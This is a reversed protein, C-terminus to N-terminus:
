KQIRSAKRLTSFLYKAMGFESSTSLRYHESRLPFETAPSLLLTAARVQLSRRFVEDGSLSWFPEFDEFLGDFEDVMVFDVGKAFEWWDDFGRPPERKYRRRYEIVAAKLTKSQRDVKNRYQTEAEEILDPIPHYKPSSKLSATRTSDAGGQGASGAYLGAQLFLLFVCVVFIYGGRRNWAGGDHLNNRM